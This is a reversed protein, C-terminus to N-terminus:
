NFYQILKRLTQPKAKKIITRLYRKTKFRQIDINQNNLSKKHIKNIPKIYNDKEFPKFFLDKEKNEAQKRQNRIEVEKNIDEITIRQQLNKNIENILEKFEEDNEDIEELKKNFFLNNNYNNSNMYSKIEEKIGTIIQEAKESQKKTLNVEEIEETEENMNEIPKIDQKVENMNEIPKIDQKVEENDIKNVILDGNDLKNVILDKNETENINLQKMTLQKNKRKLYNERNKLAIKLKFEENDKNKQYYKKQNTLTIDKNSM